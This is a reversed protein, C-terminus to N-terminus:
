SLKKEDTCDRAIVIVLQKEEIIAYQKRLSIMRDQGEEGGSLIFMGSEKGAKFTTLAEALSCRPDSFDETQMTQSQETRQISDSVNEVKHFVRTQM